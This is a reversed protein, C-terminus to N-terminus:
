EGPVRAAGTCEACDAMSLNVQQDPADRPIVFARRAVCHRAAQESCHGWVEVVHPGDGVVTRLVSSDERAWEDDLCLDADEVWGEVVVELPVRREIPLVMDMRVTEGRCLHGVLPVLTPTRGDKWALLFQTAGADLDEIQAEGSAGTEADGLTDPPWPDGPDKSRRFATRAHPNTTVAVFVGELSSGTEDVVRVGIAATRPMVRRLGDLRGRTRLTGREEGTLVLPVAVHGEASLGGLAEELGLTSLDVDAFAEFFGGETTTPPWDDRSGSGRTWLRAGRIPRGIDDEATGSLIWPGNAPRSGPGVGPVVLEARYVGGREFPGKVRVMARVGDPVDPWVEISLDKGPEVERFSYKGGPDARASDTYMPVADGGRRYFMPSGDDWQRIVVPFAPLLNGEEDRVIGEVWARRELVIEIPDPDTGALLCAEYAPTEKVMARDHGRASARAMGGERFELLLDSVRAEAEFTGGEGTVTTWFPRIGRRRSPVGAGEVEAGM